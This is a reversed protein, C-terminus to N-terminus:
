KNINIGWPAVSLALSLMLIEQTGHSFPWGFMGSIIIATFSGILGARIGYERIDKTSRIFKISSWYYIILLWLFAALGVLGMEAAIQLFMNHVIEIDIKKNPNIYWMKKDPNYDLQLSEILEKSAYQNLLVSYNGPGVGIFPNDIAMNFASKALLVRQNTSFKRFFVNTKIDQTKVDSIIIGASLLLIVIPLLLSKLSLRKYTLTSIMMVGFILGIWSGRSFTAFLTLSLVFLSFLLAFRWKIRDSSLYLGIALPIIGTLYSGFANPQGFTAFAKLRNDNIRYDFPEQFYLYQNLGALSIIVGSLTSILLIVSIDKEDKVFNFIFFYIGFLWIFQLTERLAIFKNLAVLDSIICAGMFLVVPFFLPTTDIKNKNRLIYFFWVLFSISFLIETTTVRVKYFNFVKFFPISFVALFVAFTLITRHDILLRKFRINFISNM